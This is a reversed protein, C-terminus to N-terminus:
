WKVNGLNIITGDTIRQSIGPYMNMSRVAGNEVNTIITKQIGNIIVNMTNNGSTMKSLNQTVLEYAKSAMTGTTLGLDAHRSNSFAHETFKELVGTNITKVAQTGEYLAVTGAYAKWMQLAEAVVNLLAVKALEAPAAQMNRYHEGLAVIDIPQQTARYADSKAVAESLNIQSTIQKTGAVIKENLAIPDTTYLVDGPKISWETGKGEVWYEKYTKGAPSNFHGGNGLNTRGANLSALETVTIGADKAIKEPTDGNKVRVVGEPEGKTDGNLDVYFIPNNGFCAYPSEYVHIVPDLNWRRGTRSDYEWFEATFAGEFIENDKEQGNSLGYRYSNSNYSRNPMTQHFVYGDSSSIIESNYYDIIGSTPTTTHAIKRDSIVTLVNGLHNSLEYRSREKKISKNTSM